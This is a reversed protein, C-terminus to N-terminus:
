SRCHRGPPRGPAGCTRARLQREQIALENKIDCCDGCQFRFPQMSQRHSGHRRRRRRFLRACTGHRCTCICHRCAGQPNTEHRNGKIVAAPRSGSGRRHFSLYRRPDPNGLRQDLTPLLAKSKTPTAPSSRPHPGSSGRAGSTSCRSAIRKPVSPSTRPLTRPDLRLAGPHRRREVGASFAIVTLLALFGICALAKVVIAIGYLPPEYFTTRMLRERRTTQMSSSNRIQYATSPEGSCRRRRQSRGGFRARSVPRALSSHDPM